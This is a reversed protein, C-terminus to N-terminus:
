GLLEVTNELGFFFFFLQKKKKMFGCFIKVFLLESLFSMEVMKWKQLIQM